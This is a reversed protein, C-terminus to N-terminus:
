DDKQRKLLGMESAAIVTEVRKTTGLKKMIRALHDKVTYHSIYMRQGIERNTLGDAAYELITLQQESLVVKPPHSLASAVRADVVVNGAAVDILRHSLEDSATDKLLFGKAGVRLVESTAHVDAYSTLVAIHTQPRLRHVAEVVAKGDQGALRLDVVVLDVDHGALYSLAPEPATFTARVDLGARGLLRSLGDLVVEHDDVLVVRYAKHPTIPAAPHGSRQHIGRAVPVVDDAVM